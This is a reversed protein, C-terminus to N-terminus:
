SIRKLALVKNILFFTQCFELISDILFKSETNALEVHYAFLSATRQNIIQQLKTLQFELIQSAAWIARRKQYTKTQQM